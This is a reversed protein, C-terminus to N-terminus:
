SWPDKDTTDPKARNDHIYFFEETTEGVRRIIRRQSNTMDAPNLELGNFEVWAVLARKTQQPSWKLASYDRFENQITRRLVECNTNGSEPSFFADAWAHFADGMINKLNRKRVNFMPPEIKDKDDPHGLYFKLCQMCTNVALNWQDNNFESFLNIGFETKPNRKEDFEDNPGDHYYDSFVTYLLRRNTSQDANKPPFNSTAGLKPGDVYELEFSRGHKPNIQWVDTISSFLQSFDMYRDCDDFYVFDTFETVRENWHNNKFLDQKRGDVTVMEMFFKPIKMFLSKGSGGKSEDAETIKNELAWPMWAKSDEKYRHLLYGLTFIRNVLHHEMELAEEETYETRIYERGTEPDKELVGKEKVRWYMRCTREMFSLLLCDDKLIKIRWSEKAEDYWIKFFDDLVNVEYPLVRYDWEYTQIREPEFEQIGKATILWTKNHFFYFQSYKNHKKFDLERLPLNSLSNDNLQTTRYFADTIDESFGRETLFKMIYDRCESPRIERVINGMLHVYGYGEKTGEMKLRYFGNSALFNYMRTNRPKYTYGTFEGNRNFNAVADWFRYCLATKVLMTFDWPRFYKMYDRLDKCPNGRWDKRKLLEDPLRIIFLDLHEMGLEHSRRKGTADIDGLYMVKEALESLKRFTKDLLPATESNLWVVAFGMAAVNLADSEGSCIIVEQLKKLKGGASEEGELDSAKNLDDFAKQVASLGYVVDKPKQGHYIFRKGKDKERPKYIKRFEKSHEFMFMPFDDNAMFHHVKRKKVISYADLVLCNLKAMTDRLREPKYANRVQRAFITDLVKESPEKVNVSFDWTGEEHGPEAPEQRYDAKYEPTQGSEGPIGFEKAIHELAASFDENHAKMWLDIANRSKADDGFDCVYWVGEIERLTASATREDHAKFHRKPQHVSASAQPYLRLIIDLGGDTADLIKQKDFYM